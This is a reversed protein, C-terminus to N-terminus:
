KKTNTKAQKAFNNVLSVIQATMDNAQKKAKHISEGTGM